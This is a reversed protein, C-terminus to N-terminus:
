LKFLYAPMNKGRVGLGVVLNYILTRHGEPLTRWDQGPPIIIWPLLISAKSSQLQQILGLSMDMVLGPNTREQVNSLLAYIVVLSIPHLSKGALLVLALLGGAVRWYVQDVVPSTKPILMGGMEIWCGEKQLM